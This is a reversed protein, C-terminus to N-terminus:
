MQSARNAVGDAIPIFGDFVILSESREGIEASGREQVGLALEAAARGARDDCRERLIDGVLHLVVVACLGLPYRDYGVAYLGARFDVGFLRIREARPYQGLQVEFFGVVGDQEQEGGVVEPKFAESWQYLRYGGVCASGGLTLAVKHHDAM